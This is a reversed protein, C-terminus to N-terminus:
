AVRLQGPSRVPERLLWHCDQPRGSAEGPLAPQGAGGSLVMTNAPFQVALAGAGAASGSLVTPKETNGWEGGNARLGGEPATGQGFGSFVSSKEPIDAAAQVGGGDMAEIEELSPGRGERELKAYYRENLKELREHVKELARLAKDRDPQKVRIVPGSKRMVTSVELARRTEEEMGDLPLVEWGSAFMREARFFAARKREMILQLESCQAEALLSSLEIRIRERVAENNMLENAQSARSKESYGARVAAASANQDILYEFVFRLQRDTLTDTM